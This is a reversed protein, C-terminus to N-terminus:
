KRNGLGEDTFSDTKSKRDAFRCKPEFACFLSIQVKVKCIFLRIELYEVKYNSNPAKRNIQHTCNILMVNYIMLNSCRLVTQSPTSIEESVLPSVSTETEEGNLRIERPSVDSIDSLNTIIGEELNVLSICM